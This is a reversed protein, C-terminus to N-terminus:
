RARRRRPQRARAAGPTRGSRVRRRARGGHTGAHRRRRARDACGGCPRPRDRGARRPPGTRPARGRQHRVVRHARPARSAAGATWCTMSPTLCQGVNPIRANPIRPFARRTRLRHPRRDGRSRRAAGGPAAGAGRRGPEGAGCGRPRGWASRRTRHLGATDLGPDRRLATVACAVGAFGWRELLVAREDLDVDSEACRFLPEALLLTADTSRALARFREFDGTSVEHRATALALTAVMPHGDDRIDCLDVKNRVLLTRECPPQDAPHPGGAVVYVVVDADLVPDPRDLADIPTTVTDPPLGLAAAVCRRGVRARGAVHVAVPVRCCELAAHVQGAVAGDLGAAMAGLADDLEGM